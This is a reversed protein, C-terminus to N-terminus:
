RTNMIERKNGEKDSDNGKEIETILRSTNINRKIESHIHQNFNREQIISSNIKTQRKGSRERKDINERKEM